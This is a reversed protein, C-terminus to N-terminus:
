QQGAAPNVQGGPGSIGPMSPMPKAQPQAANGMGLEMAQATQAAAERAQQEAELQLLGNYALLLMEKVPAPALDYRQTKMANEFENKYVPIKDFPRPMWWPVDLPIQPPPQPAVPMPAGDPGMQPAQMPQPPPQMQANPVNEGSLVSEPDEFIQQIIRNARAIDLEYSKILGEAAGGEIAAMAMHPEVWGLQAWNMIRQEMFERTLPQISGPSVRVNVQDMLDAGKFDQINEPGSWGNIQILRGETYHKEVLTLCHRMLRSHWEALNGLFAGRATNDRETLVQIARAAEVQSPIENQSALFGLDAKARDQIESLIQPVPPTPRWQVQDPRGVEIIAGPEDTLPTLLMGPAVMLQPNMALNKWESQKNRADQYQRVADILFRVMGLDRDNDPDKIVTLKHLVPEDLITGDPGELPYKGPQAIVRGNAMCLRRGDAFKPSPRELYETVLILKTMNSNTSSMSRSASADSTLDGAYYGPMEKVQDLPRAQVIVYWRADDFPVGPEWGVENGSYVRINIEGEHLDEADGEGTEPDVVDPLAPGISPDWFPWAFGEDGVLAHTVVRETVSKIRWKDYGYLAVQSAVHAANQTEPDSNSPNIEYSPVRSTANAVETRVIPMLMPLRMRVRHNPKGGRRNTSIATSQATLRGEANVYAYTNGRWVEYCENRYPALERMRGVARAVNEMIDPPPEIKSPGKDPRLQEKM